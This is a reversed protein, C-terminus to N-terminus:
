TYQRVTDLKKCLAEVEEKTAGLRKMMMRETAFEPAPTDRPFYKALVKETGGGSGAANHSLVAVREYAERYRQRVSEPTDPSSLAERLAEVEVTLRLLVHIIPAVSDDRMLKQLLAMTLSESTMADEDHFPAM